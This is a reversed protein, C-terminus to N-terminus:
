KQLAAERKAGHARLLEAIEALAREDAAQLPPPDGGSLVRGSKVPDEAYMLPTVGEPTPNNVDAKYDLLLKVAEKSKLRHVAYFLLSTGDRSSHGNANAGAKLLMEAAALNAGLANLLPTFGSSDQAELKPKKELIAALVGAPQFVAAHLITREDRDRADVDAGHELLLRVTRELGNVVAILLPTRDAYDKANVDAGKAILLRASELAGNEAALHLSTRPRGVGKPGCKRNPDSGHALLIEAIAFRGQHVALSLPHGEFYQGDLGTGALAGVINPDAGNTLLLELVDKKGSYVAFHLPTANNHERANVDAGNALLFQAVKVQGGLAAKHLPTQRQSDRANVVDMDKMQSQLRELEQTERDGKRGPPSATAQQSSQGALAAVQKQSLETLTSQDSFERVVRQYQAVAENTKNLKRYCEGLRFVATAAFKRHEATQDIVSQSAKIAADLNHNAEEEFLGKQLADSIPDAAAVSLSVFILSVKLWSHVPIFVFKM